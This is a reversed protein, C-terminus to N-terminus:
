LAAWAHAALVVAVTGAMSWLAQRAKRRAAKNHLKRPCTGKHTAHDISVALLHASM